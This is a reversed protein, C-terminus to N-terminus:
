LITVLEYGSCGSMICKPPEYHRIHIEVIEQHEGEDDDMVQEDEDEGGDQKDDDGEKEDDNVKVGAARDPLFRAINYLFRKIARSKVLWRLGSGVMAIFNIIEKIKALQELSPAKNKLSHHITKLEVLSKFFLELIESLIKHFDTYTEQNYLDNKHKVLNEISTVLNLHMRKSLFNIFHVDNEKSTANGINSPIFNFDDPLNGPKLADRFAKSIRYEMRTIMKQYCSAVVYHTLSHSPATDSESSGPTGSTEIFRSIMWTHLEFSDKLDLKKRSTQSPRYYM